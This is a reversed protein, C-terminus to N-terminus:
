CQAWSERKTEVQTESRTAKTELREREQRSEIAVAHTDNRILSKANGTAGSTPITKNIRTREMLM